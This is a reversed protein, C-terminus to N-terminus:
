DTKVVLGVWNRIARMLSPRFGMSINSRLSNIEDWFWDLCPGERLTSSKATRQKERSNADTHLQCMSKNSHAFQWVATCINLACGPSPRILVWCLLRSALLTRWKERCLQPCSLYLAILTWSALSTILLMCYQHCVCYKCTSWSAQSYTSIEDGNCSCCTQGVSVFLIPSSWRSAVPFITNM